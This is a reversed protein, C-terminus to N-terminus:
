KISNQEEKNEIENDECVEEYKCKNCQKENDIICKQRQAKKKYYEEKKMESIVYSANIGRM